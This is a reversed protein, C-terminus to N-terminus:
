GSRTRPQSALEGSVKLVDEARFVGRVHPDLKEGHLIDIAIADLLSRGGYAICDLYVRQTENEFLGIRPMIAVRGRSGESFKHERLVRAAEDADQVYISLLHPPQLQTLEYARYDM